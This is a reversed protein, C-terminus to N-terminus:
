SSQSLTHAHLISVSHPAKAKSPNWTSTLRVPVCHSGTFSTLSVLMLYVARVLGASRRRGGGGTGFVRRCAAGRAARTRAAASGAGQQESRAATRNAISAGQQHQLGRRRSVHLAVAHRGGAVPHAM